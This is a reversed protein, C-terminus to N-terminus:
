ENLLAFLGKAGKWQHDDELDLEQLGILCVLTTFIFFFFLAIISLQTM